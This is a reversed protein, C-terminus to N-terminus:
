LETKAYASLCSCGPFRGPKKEKKTGFLQGTKERDVVVAWYGTTDHLFTSRSDTGSEANHAIIGIDQNV